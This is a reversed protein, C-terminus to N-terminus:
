AKTIKCNQGQQIQQQKQQLTMQHLMHTQLDILQELKNDSEPQSM